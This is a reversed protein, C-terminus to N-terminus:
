GGSLEVMKDTRLKAIIAVAQGREVKIKRMISAIFDEVPQAGNEVLLEYATHRATGEKWRKGERKLAKIRGKIPEAKRGARATGNKKTARVKGAKPKNGRNHAMIKEKTAEYRNIIRKVGLEKTRLTTEVVPGEPKDENIEPLANYLATLQALTFMEGLKEATVITFDEDDSAHAHAEAAAVNDFGGIVRPVKQNLGIAFVITM